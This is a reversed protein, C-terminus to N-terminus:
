SKPRLFLKIKMTLAVKWFDLYDVILRTERITLNQRKDFLSCRTLQEYLDTCRKIMGTLRRVANRPECDPFYLMALSRRSYSSNLRM